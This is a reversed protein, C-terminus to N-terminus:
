IIYNTKSRKARILKTPFSGPDANVKLILTSGTTCGQYQQKREEGGGM